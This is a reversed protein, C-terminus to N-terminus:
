LREAWWRLLQRDAVGYARCSAAAAELLADRRSAGETAASARRVAAAAEDWAAGGAPAPVQRVQAASLKIRGDSLAAGGFRRLAWATVPPALLAAAVHWLRGPPAAVTIVPTLPLWRGAEDVAAEVVRTQTAVVVKPVLRARAWRALCPDAAMKALDVRPALWRRRRYRVPRRGWTCAAPDIAGVTVLPPFRAGDLIGEPDDVVFPEIGYYQHRFDAAVACWGGLTGAAEVDVAPVAELDALLNSWTPARVLEDADLDVDPLPRPPAGTYRRLRGQRAGGRRLVPVCVRVAADFVREGPVWLSELAARGLVAARAPRADRTALFSQPMVLAVVGGPRVLDVAHVLFLVAADAYGRAAEGVGLRVAVAEARDRATRRSLQSLFPPNGVVVDPPAPWGDPGLALADGTVLRPVAAGGCWLALVTETVAVAVPDLDAGVLSQAVVEARDRRATALVDAAALLFSGGGVAPDCVVPDVSWRRGDGLAWGVVAQAVAPPTYFAGAARRARGDLLAEHVQGVLAPSALGPAVAVAEPPGWRGLLDLPPLDVGMAEAVAVAVGGSVRARAGVPDVGGRAEAAAGLWDGGGVRGVPAGTVRGRPGSRPM